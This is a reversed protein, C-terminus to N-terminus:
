SLRSPKNPKGAKKDDGIDRCVTDLSVAQNTQKEQKRIMVSIEACRILLSPKTQKNEQKRIMVSIEACRILLSPKTQKNKQKRIMVAVSLHIEPVYRSPCYKVNDYKLELDLKRDWRTM